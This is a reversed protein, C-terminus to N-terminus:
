FVDGSFGIFDIMQICASFIEVHTRRHEEM